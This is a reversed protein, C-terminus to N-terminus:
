HSMWLDGEETGRLRYLWRDDPSLDFMEVFSGDVPPRLLDRAERTRSDIMRIAGQQDLVLARRGDAMWLALKGPCLRQFRRTSLSFSAIGGGLIGLLREGDRSWANPTFPGEPALPLREIPRHGPPETLDLIGSGNFGWCFAISRGDPSSVPRFIPEKKEATLQRLGSGDARISWANYQGSRNSYFLIRGDPAWVAMRDKFEDDM